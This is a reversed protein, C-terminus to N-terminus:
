SADAAAAPKQARPPKFSSVLSPLVLGFRRFIDSARRAKQKQDPDGRHKHYANSYVQNMKVYDAPKYAGDQLLRQEEDAEGPAANAAKDLRQEDAVKAAAVDVPEEVSKPDMNATPEEVSKTDVNAIPEEVSKTDMNAIQADKKSKKNAPGAKAKAKRKSPQPAPPPEHLLQEQLANIDAAPVPYKYDQM